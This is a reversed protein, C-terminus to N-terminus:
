NKIENIQEQLKQVAIRLNANSSELQGVKKHVIDFNHMMAYFLNYPYKEPTLEGQILKDLASRLPDSMTPILVTMHNAILHAEFTTRPSDM